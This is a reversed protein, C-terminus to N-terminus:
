VLLQYFPETKSANGYAAAVQLAAPKLNRWQDVIGKNNIGGPRLTSSNSQDVKIDSFQWLSIGSINSCDMATKTTIGDVLSQFELSWRTPPKQYSHNGVIGGAGAESIIGM